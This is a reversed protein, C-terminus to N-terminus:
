RILGRIHLFSETLTRTRTRYWLRTEFDSQFDSIVKAQHRLPFCVLRSMHLKTSIQVMAMNASPKFAQPRKRISQFSHAWYGNTVAQVGVTALAGKVYTTPSPVFLSAKRMKSMKSVVFYPSVIQFSVGRGGYELSLARTFVDVFSKAGSYLSLFPTPQSGASSGINIVYGSRRKLMNPLVIQTMKAVSLCNLHLMSLIFDPDEVEAFYEPHDYSMGVNNVLVGIDLFELKSRINDYIDDRSFDAAIVQTKVKYKE